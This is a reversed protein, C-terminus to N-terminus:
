PQVEEPRANVRYAHGDLHVTTATLGDDALWEEVTDLIAVVARSSDGRAQVVVEMRQHEFSIDEADFIGVLAQVLSGANETSVSAIRVAGPAFRAASV